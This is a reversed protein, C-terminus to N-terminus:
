NQRYSRLGQGLLVAGLAADLRLAHDYDRLAKGMKGLSAFALGRNAYCWACQPALAVCVSFATAAGEFDGLHYACSGCYFNPWLSNPELELAHDMEEAARWYDGARFHVLGVACHDWATHPALAAAQRAAAEAVDILGLAQAHAQRERSLVCSPGFLTEAEDLIELARRRALETDSRSALRVRLHVGLIALDLLDARVQRELELASSPGLRQVIVDRKQWITRCHAEAARAQMESLATASYLPRLSESLLHLEGIANGREATRMEDRFQHKLDAHFPLDEVLALGYKMTDLAEAYRHQDLHVQGDKLTTRAKDVQRGVHNLAFGIAVMVALLLGLLPLVHRRRRRWKGWREVLNRNPVGRLPLDALHRRLDSALASATPYREEPAPNLCRVVLDALGTTVQPNLRRLSRVPWEIPSPLRGGLVEYLLIGLAYIDAGVDVAVAVPERRAVAELAAQHEPAMYGPTGGLWLPAPSGAAIPARALHFDLLMPQGDAALLVNSPKLDLHLLNREHAYHLADALCAGIWCVAQVYSVRALFQCCPGEVPVAQSDSPPMERLAERIHQGTRQAPPRSQIAEVLRDLTAGGFYPICLARLRRDPFDHVSHLPVIHTHQLRALSLHERGACPGLKLVVPRDALPPQTALFVRGQTGRGLEALLRFEGLMEGPAPLSPGALRSALLHHCELLAQVQRRWHPFRAFFDEVSIEQSYEQRLHIEEYVLELAAEPQDWLHPYLHLFEEALPREGLRWRRSMNDALHEILHDEDGPQQDAWCGKGLNSALDAM